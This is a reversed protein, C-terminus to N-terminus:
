GLQGMSVPVLIDKCHTISVQLITLGMLAHAGPPIAQGLYRVMPIEKQDHLLLKIGAGEIPGSMYEYQEINM